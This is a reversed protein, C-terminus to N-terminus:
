EEEREEREMERDRKNEKGEGKAFNRRSIEVNRKKDRKDGV